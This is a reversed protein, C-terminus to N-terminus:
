DGGKAHMKKMTCTRDHDGSTERVLRGDEITIVRTAIDRLRDDHSVIVVTKRERCAIACLLMMVDHGNTSDLNATPEDALILAPNNILARAISVRQKEGGSLASPLHALRRGLGLDTLRDAARRAAERRPQGAALLPLAVNEQASLAALLNFSQFVFGLKALRLAPLERESLRTLCVGDLYVHGSTPRLLGGLITLLTTKGSGSPGMVLVIESREVTLSVNQVATVQTRGTGYIKTLNQVDLLAM